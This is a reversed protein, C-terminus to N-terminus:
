PKRWVGNAYRFGLRRCYDNAQTFEADTLFRGKRVLKGGDEFVLFDPVRAISEAREEQTKQGYFGRYEVEADSRGMDTVSAPTFLQLTNQISQASRRVAEYSTAGRDEPFQRYYEDMFDSRSMDRTEPRTALMFAVKMYVTDLDRPVREPVWNRAAAEIKKRKAWNQDTLAGSLEGSGWFHDTSNSLNTGSGGRGAM